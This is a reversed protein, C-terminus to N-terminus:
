DFPKIDLVLGYSATGSATQHGGIVMASCTAPGRGIRLSSLRRRYSRADGRAMYALTSGNRRIAVAMNDHPNDSEPIIQVDFESRTGFEAALASLARQYNAEGVVSFDFEGLAPWTHPSDNIPRPTPRSSAAPPSSAPVAGRNSPATGSKFIAGVLAGLAKFILALPDSNKRRAM